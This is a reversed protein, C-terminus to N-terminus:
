KISKLWGGDCEGNIKIRTSSIINGDFYSVKETVDDKIAVKAPGDFKGSVTYPSIVLIERTSNFGKTKGDVIIPTKRSELRAENSASWGNGHKIVIM